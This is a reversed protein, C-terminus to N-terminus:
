LVFLLVFLAILLAFMIIPLTKSGIKKRFQNKESKLLMESNLRRCIIVLFCPSASWKTRKLIFYSNIQASTANNTVCFLSTYRTHM